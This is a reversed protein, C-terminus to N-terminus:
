LIEYIKNNLIKTITAPQFSGGNKGKIKSRNLHKAIENLTKGESKLSFITRVVEIESPVTILERVTGPVPYGKDDLVPPSNRFGFPPNGCYTSGKSKRDSQVDRIRKSTQDSELQALAAVITLFVAGIPSATDVGVDLAHFSIGKSKLENVQELVAVTNRGFRSLSYVLVAKVEKSQAESLMQKYGPRDFNRGTYAQDEYSGVIVMGKSAAYAELQTKQVPISSGKDAQKVHSVRTYIVANM